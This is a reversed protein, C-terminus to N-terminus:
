RPLGLYRLYEAPGASNWVDKESDATIWVLGLMSASNAGAGRELGSHRRPILCMWEKVLIVNYDTGGGAEKHSQRVKRLLKEYAQILTDADSHAPLRLVFHKHPVTPIDDTIGVTSEAVHPFLQFGLEQEDPYPWLQMHKHGQSSGSEFGCNFIMMYRQKFHQLVVWAASLDGRDLDDSQPEFHRTIILLGPRYVSFKNLILLHSSGVESLVEDPNPNLFPNHGKGTKREPADSPTIPKRRLHPVFRFNLKFGQDEVTEATSPEYVLQGKAVLNDFRALSQAELDPPLTAADRSGPGDNENLSNQDM